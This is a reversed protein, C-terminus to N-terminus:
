KNGMIMRFWGNNTTVTKINRFMNFMDVAEKKTYVEAKPCGLTDTNWSVWQKHTPHPCQKRLENYRYYRLYWLIKRLFMIDFIYRLSLKNYLMVVIVGGPQLVRYAECIVRQPNVAHHIVGFSYVLDFYNNPYDLYEANMQTVIGKSNIKQKTAYVATETLDIGFYRAGSNVFGVADNGLGCGIELVKKGKFLSFVFDHYGGACPNNNWYNKIESYERPM